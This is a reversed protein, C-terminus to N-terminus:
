KLGRNSDSSSGYPITNAPITFSVQSVSGYAVTTGTSSTSWGTSKYGAYHKNIGPASANAYIGPITVSDPLYTPAPARWYYSFTRFTQFGIPQNSSNRPDFRVYYTFEEIPPNSVSAYYVVIDSTADVLIDSLVTSTSDTAVLIIMFLSTNTTYSDIDIGFDVQNLTINRVDRYYTQGTHTVNALFIYGNTSDWIGFDFTSSSSSADVRMLGNVTNVQNTNKNFTGYGCWLYQRIYNTDLTDTLGPTLTKQYEVGQFNVPGIDTRRVYRGM